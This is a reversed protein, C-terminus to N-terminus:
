IGWPGIPLPVRLLRAFVFYTAAPAGAAFAAVMILPKREVIGLLWVLLIAITLRYGLTEFALAAFGSAALIALAHGAEGWRLSKLPQSEGGGIVVLASLVALLLALGLPMAGPGPHALTGLPLVRSEFAVALAFALM